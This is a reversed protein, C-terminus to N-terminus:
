TYPFSAYIWEPIRFLVTFLPIVGLSAAAMGAIFSAVINPLPEPAYRDQFYFFLAWIICPVFVLAALILFRSTPGGGLHATRGVVYMAALFAVQFFSNLLGTRLTRKAKM